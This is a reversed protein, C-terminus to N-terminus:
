QASTEEDDRLVTEPKTKRWGTGSPAPLQQSATHQSTSGLTGGRLAIDRFKEVHESDSFCIRPSIRHHVDSLAWGDLWIGQAALKLDGATFDRLRTVILKRRGSDFAPPRTGGVVRRWGELYVAFVEAPVDPGKAPKPKDPTPSDALAAFLPGADTSSAPSSSCLEPGAAAPSPDTAPAPEPDTPQDGQAQPGAAQLDDPELPCPGSGSPESGASAPDTDPDPDASSLQACCPDACLSPVGLERSPDTVGRSLVPASQSPDTVGRSPSPSDEPPTEGAAKARARERAAKARAKDSAHAEQARVFNPVVIAAGDPSMRCCGDTLLEPLAREVVELPLRLMAALSRTSSKGLSSLIGARDVARLLLLFLARAEWSLLCWEPTDRTYVRVYREDEWRM